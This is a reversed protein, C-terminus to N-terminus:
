IQDFNQFEKDLDLNQSKKSNLLQKMNVISKVMIQYTNIKNHNYEKNKVSNSESIIEEDLQFSDSENQCIKETQHTNNPSQSDFKTLTNLTQNFLRNQPTFISKRYQLKRIKDQNESLKDFLNENLLDVVKPHLLNILGEELPLRNPIKKIKNNTEQTNEAKQIITRNDEYLIGTDSQNLQNLIIESNAKNISTIPKPIYKFLKIQNENLLLKKLKEFEILKNIIYYIDLHNYLKQLGYDIVQSKNKKQLNYLEFLIQLLQMHEDSSKLHKYSSIKLFQNMKKTATKRQIRLLPFAKLKKINQMKVVILYNKEQRITKLQIQVTEGRNNQHKTLFKLPREKDNILKLVTKKLSEM